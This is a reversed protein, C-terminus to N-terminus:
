LLGTVKIRLLLVLSIIIFTCQDEHLYFVRLEQVIKIFSPHERCIKPSYEFVFKMFIRGTFSANNWASPGTYLCVLRLQYDSRAINQLRRFCVCVCV